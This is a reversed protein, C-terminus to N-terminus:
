RGANPACDRRPKNDGPAAFDLGRWVRATLQARAALPPLARREILFDNLDRIFDPLTALEDPSPPDEQKPSLFDHIDAEAAGGPAGLGAAALTAAPEALLRAFSIVPTGEPLAKLAAANYAAWLRAAADPEIDNRRRLSRAVHRVDRMMLVFAPKRGAEAAIESWFPIFFVLRPDKCVIPGQAAGYTEAWVERAHDAFREPPTAGAAIAASIDRWSGGFHGLMQENLRAILRPEWFGKPNDAQPAMRREGHAFGLFRLSGSLASTGSRHMGIVFLVSDPSIPATMLFGLKPAFRDLPARRAGSERAPALQLLTRGAQGM